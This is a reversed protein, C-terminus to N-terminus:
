EVVLVDAHDVLVIIGSPDFDEVYVHYVRESNDRFSLKGVDRGPMHRSSNPFSPLKQHICRRHNHHQIDVGNGATWGKPKKASKLPM